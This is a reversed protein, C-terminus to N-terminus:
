WLVQPQKQNMQAYEKRGAWKNDNALISPINM